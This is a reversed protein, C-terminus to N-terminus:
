AVQAEQDPLSALTLGCFSQFGARASGKMEDERPGEAILLRNRQVYRSKM